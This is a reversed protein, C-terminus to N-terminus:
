KEFRYKLFARFCRGGGAAAPASGAGRHRAPIRCRAASEGPEQPCLLALGQSHWGQLSHRQDNCFAFMCIIQLAWLVPMRHDSSCSGLDLVAAKNLVPESVEKKSLLVFGRSLTLPWRAEVWPPCCLHHKATPGEARLTSHGGSCKGRNIGAISATQPVQRYTCKEHASGLLHILSKSPTNVTTLVSLM